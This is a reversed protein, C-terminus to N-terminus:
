DINGYRREADATSRSRKKMKIDRIRKQAERTRM